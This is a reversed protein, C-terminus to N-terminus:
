EEMFWVTCEGVAWERGRESTLLLECITDGLDSGNQEKGSPLKRTLGALELGIRRWTGDKRKCLDGYQRELQSFLWLITAIPKSVDKIELKSYIDMVKKKFALAYDLKCFLAFNNCFSHLSSLTAGRFIDTIKDGDIINKIRDESEGEKLFRRIRDITSELDQEKKLLLNFFDNRNGNSNEIEKCLTDWVNCLYKVKYPLIVDVSGYLDALTFILLISFLEKADQTKAGTLSILDIMVPLSGEGTSLIGFLDHFKILMEFIHILRKQYDTLYPLKKPRWKQYPINLLLPYLDRAVVNERVDKILHWGVSPHREHIIYKGIDHYLVCLRFFPDIDEKELKIYSTGNDKRMFIKNYTDGFVSLDEDNTAAKDIWSKVIDQPKEGLLIKMGEIVRKIHGPAEKGEKIQSGYKENVKPITKLIDGLPFRDLEEDNPYRARLIKDAEDRTILSKSANVKKTTTTM